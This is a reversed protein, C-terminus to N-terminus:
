DNWDMDKLYLNWMDRNGAAFCTSSGGRARVDRGWKQDREEGGLHEWMTVTRVTERAFPCGRGGEVSVVRKM